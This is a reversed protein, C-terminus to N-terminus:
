KDKKKEPEWEKKVTAWWRGWWEERPNKKAMAAVMDITVAKTM